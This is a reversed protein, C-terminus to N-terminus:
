KVVDNGTLVAAPDRLIVLRNITGRPLSKHLGIVACGQGQENTWAILEVSNKWRISENVFFFFVFLDVSILATIEPKRAEYFKVFRSRHVSLHITFWIRTVNWAVIWSVISVNLPAAAEDIRIADLRLFTSVIPRIQCYFQRALRTSELIKNRFHRLSKQYNNSGRLNPKSTLNLNHPAVQHIKCQHYM